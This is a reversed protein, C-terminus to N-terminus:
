RRKNEYLCYHEMDSKIRKFGLYMAMKCGQEFGERVYAYWKDFSYSDFLRFGKKIIRLIDTKREKGIQLWMIASNKKLPIIGGIVAIQGDSSLGTWTWEDPVLSDWTKQYDPHWSMVDEVPEILKEDGHRYNRIKINSM